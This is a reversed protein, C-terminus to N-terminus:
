TPVSERVPIAVLRKGTAPYEEYLAFMHNSQGMWIIQGDTTMLRMGGTIVGGRTDIEFIRLFPGLGMLAKVLIEQDRMHHRARAAMRRAARDFREDLHPTDHILKHQELTAVIQGIISM